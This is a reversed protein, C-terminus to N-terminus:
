VLLKRMFVNKLKDSGNATAYVTNNVLPMAGRTMPKVADCSCVASLQLGGGGGHVSCEGRVGVYLGVFWLHCM